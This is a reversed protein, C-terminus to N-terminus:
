CRKSQLRNTWCGPARRAVPVQEEIRRFEAVLPQLEILQGLSTPLLNHRVFYDLFAAQEDTLKSARWAEVAEALREGFRRALDDRSVPAEGEFLYLVPDVLDLPTHNSNHFVIRDVGFYSRGDDKASPRPSQRRDLRKKTLDDRTAVRSLGHLGELLHPGLHVM